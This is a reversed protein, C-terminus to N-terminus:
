LEDYNLVVFPYRENQEHLMDLCYVGDSCNNIIQTEGFGEVEAIVEPAVGKSILYDRIAAGRDQSLKLNTNKYGRSDTHSEIRLRLGPFKKLELAALDLISMIDPTLRKSNREFHFDDMKLITRSAQRVVISELPTLSVELPEGSSLIEDTASNGLVITEYREKGVAVWVSDRWPIELRFSGDPSSYTEKLIAADTDFFQILAKEVGEGSLDRVTGRYALTRLGPKEQSRFAYIDDKGLGGSRNSAFYGEFGGQESNRVIFGFDDKNSNIGPGLNVPISYFDVGQAESKYIDMGGLGFFVDSSFYLSGEFIFPAIENGPTNIQPGLNLPESMIQGNNSYVYYLDTGGYGTGFDAAFYLRGSSEDYFPYYFSTSLDRFLPQFFGDENTRCIALANKGNPDFAMAEEEMNSQVFFVEKLSESYFPTAQHYGIRPVWSLPSPRVPVNKETISVSFISLFSEGTPDYSEKFETPRGSTFLIRDKGYFAPAFDSQPSNINPEFISYQGIPLGTDELTEYNFNANVLLEESVQNSRTSLFAKVQDPGSTKSLSQLMTNFQANTMLSDRKYVEMFVASAKDYRGTRFYADALFLEQQPSLGMKVKEKEYAEVAQSYAYEYYLRDAKSEKQAYLFGFVLLFFTFIFNRKNM